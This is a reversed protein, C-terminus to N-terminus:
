SSNEQIAHAQQPLVVSNQEDLLKAFTQEWRQSKDRYKALLADKVALERQLLHIEHQLATKPDSLLTQHVAGLALELEKASRLFDGIHTDIDREPLPTSSESVESPQLVCRLTAELQSNLRQTMAVLDTTEDQEEDVGDEEGGPEEEDFAQEEDEEEEKTEEEEVEVAMDHNEEKM